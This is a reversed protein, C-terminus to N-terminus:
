QKVKIDSFHFGVRQRGLSIQVGTKLNLIKRGLGVLRYPSYSTGGCPSSGQVEQKLPLLEVLQAIPSQKHHRQDSDFQCYSAVGLIASKVLKGM